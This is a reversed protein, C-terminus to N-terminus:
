LIAVSLSLGVSGESYKPMILYGNDKKKQLYGNCPRLFFSYFLHAVYVLGAGLLFDKAQAENRNALRALQQRTVFSTSQNAQITYDNAESNNHLYRELTYAQLGAVVIGLPWFGTRIEHWGPILKWGTQPRYRKPSMVFQADQISFRVPKNLGDYNSSSLTVSVWSDAPLGPPFELSFRSPNPLVKVHDKNLFQGKSFISIDAVEFDNCKTFPKNWELDVIRGSTKEVRIQGADVLNIDLDPYFPKIKGFVDAGTISINLLQKELRYKPIKFSFRGTRANYDLTNPEHGPIISFLDKKIQRQGTILGRVTLIEDVEELFKVRFAQNFEKQDFDEDIPFVYTFRRTSTRSAVKVIRVELSYENRQNTERLQGLAIWKMEHMYQDTYNTIRSLAQSGFFSSEREILEELGPNREIFSCGGIDSLIAAINTRLINRWPILHSGAPVRIDGVYLDECWSRDRESQAVAPQTFLSLLCLLAIITCKTYNM